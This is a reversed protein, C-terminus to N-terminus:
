DLPTEQPDYDGTGLVWELAAIIGEEYSMSPFNSGSDKAKDALDQIDQATKRIMIM